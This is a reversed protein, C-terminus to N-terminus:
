KMKLMDTSIYGYTGNVAVLTWESDTEYVNLEENANVIIDYPAASWSKNTRLYTPAKLEAKGISEKSELSTNPVFGSKKDDTDSILEVKSWQSDQGLLKVHTGQELKSQVNSTWSAEELFDVSENLAFTEKDEIVKVDSTLDYDDRLGDKFTKWLDEEIMKRSCGKGSADRHMVVKDFPVDYKEMLHKVLTQTNKFTKDYDGDSNVCMEIGISNSNTIGNRGHGDGCHYASHEERVNNIIIGDDVTYHASAGRTNTQYYKTHMEADAGKDRNDTDHVVIYEIDKRYSNYNRTIYDRKVEIGNLVLTDKTEKYINLMGGLDYNSKLLDDAKMEISCTSALFGVVAVCAIRKLSNLLRKNM